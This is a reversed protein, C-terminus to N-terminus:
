AIRVVRPPLQWWSQCLGRRRWRQWSQCLGRPPVPESPQPPVPEVPEPPVPEVPEPLNDDSRACEMARAVVACFWWAMVVM